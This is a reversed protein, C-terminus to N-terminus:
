ESPTQKRKRCPSTTSAEPEREVAADEESEVDEDVEGDEKGDAEPEKVKLSVKKATSKSPSANAMKDNTLEYPKLLLHATKPDNYHSFMHIISNIQGRAATNPLTSKFKQQFAEGGCLDRVKAFFDRLASTLDNQLSNYLVRLSSVQDILHPILNL